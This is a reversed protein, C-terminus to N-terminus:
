ISCICASYGKILCDCRDPIDKDEFPSINMAGRMQLKCGTVLDSQCLVTDHIDVAFTTTDICGNDMGGKMMNLHQTVTDNLNQNYSDKSVTKGNQRSLASLIATLIANKIFGGTLEYKMALMTVDVDPSLLLRKDNSDDEKMNEKASRAVTRLLSTWIRLRMSHDPAAYPIVTTIRRHMAEDIDHPRNTAM